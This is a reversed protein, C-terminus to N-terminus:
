SSCGDDESRSSKDSPEITGTEILLVRLISVFLWACTYTCTGVKVALCSLLDRVYSRMQQFFAYQGEMSPFKSKMSSIEEQAIEIDKEVQELQSIHHVHTDQFICSNQFVMLISVYGLLICLKFVKLDELRNALKSKLTEITIPVLKEPIAPQQRKTVMPVSPESYVGGGGFSASGYEAGFQLSGYIFSQTVPDLPQVSEGPGERLPDQTQNSAKIGKNIQEEEWRRTEEDESDSGINELGTLVQVSHNTIDQGNQYVSVIVSNSTLVNVQSSGDVM